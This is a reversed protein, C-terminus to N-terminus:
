SREEAAPPDLIRAVEDLEVAADPERFRLVDAVRRLREALQDDTAFPILEVEATM